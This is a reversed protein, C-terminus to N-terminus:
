SEKGKLLKLGRQRVLREVADIDFGLQNAEVLLGDIRDNLIRNKEKRSLPSGADAVFVGSGRRSTVVGAAELDRYARAVTNPNVLLQEALGRVTPLQDGENLRGSAILLKVQSIVQQYIPTGDENSIRIQM